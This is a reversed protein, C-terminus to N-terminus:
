INQLRDKSNKWKNKSVVDLVLIQFDFIILSLGKLAMPVSEIKSIM